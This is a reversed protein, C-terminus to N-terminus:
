LRYEQRQIFGLQFAKLYEDIKLAGGVPDMAKLFGSLIFTVGNVFRSIARIIAM